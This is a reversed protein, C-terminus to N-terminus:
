EDFKEGTQKEIEAVLPAISIAVGFRGDILEAQVEPPFLFRVNPAARDLPRDTHEIRADYRRVQHSTMSIWLVTKGTFTDGVRQLLTAASWNAFYYDITEAARRMAAEGAGLRQLRDCVLFQLLNRKTLERPRGQSGGGAVPVVGADMWRRLQRAPIGIWDVAQQLQYSKSMSRM